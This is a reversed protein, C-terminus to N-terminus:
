LDKKIQFAVSNGEVRANEIHWIVSVPFIVQGTWYLTDKRPNNKRSFSKVSPLLTRWVRTEFARLVSM